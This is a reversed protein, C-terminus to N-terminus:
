RHGDIGVRTVAGPRPRSSLRGFLREYEDTVSDWCYQSRARKVALVRYREVESRDSQIKRLAEGLAEAGREGSYSLGAEGVVELNAPTDNVVVCNGAAMAEVLM